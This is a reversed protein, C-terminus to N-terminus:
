EKTDAPAEEITSSGQIHEWFKDTTEIDRHELEPDVEFKNQDDIDTGYLAADEPNSEDLQYNTNPKEAASTPSTSGYIPASMNVAYAQM